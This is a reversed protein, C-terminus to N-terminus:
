WRRNPDKTRHRHHSAEEGGVVPQSEPQGKEEEGTTEAALTKPASYRPKFVKEVEIQATQALVRPATLVTRDHRSPFNILVM